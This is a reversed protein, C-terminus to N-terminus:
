AADEVQAARLNEIEDRAARLDAIVHRFFWTVPWGYGELRGIRYSLRFVINESM